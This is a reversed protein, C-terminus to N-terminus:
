AYLESANPSHKFLDELVQIEENVDSRQKRVDSVSM